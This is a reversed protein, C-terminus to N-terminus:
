SKHGTEILVYLVVVSFSPLQLEPEWHQFFTLDRSGLLRSTV